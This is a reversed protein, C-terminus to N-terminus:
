ITLGIVLAAGATVFWRVNLAKDLLKSYALDLGNFKKDSWAMFRGYRSDEKVEGRTRLIRSALM